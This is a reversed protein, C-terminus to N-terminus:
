ILFNFIILLYFKMKLKCIKVIKEQLYIPNIFRLCDDSFINIGDIELNTRDLMIAVGKNSLHGVESEKFIGIDIVEQSKIIANKLLHFAARKSIGHQPISTSIIVARRGNQQYEPHSQIKVSSM